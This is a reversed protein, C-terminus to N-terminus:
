QSLEFRYTTEGRAVLIPLKRYGLAWDLYDPFLEGVHIGPSARSRNDPDFTASEASKDINRLLLM